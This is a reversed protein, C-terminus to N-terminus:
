FIRREWEYTGAPVLVALFTGPYSYAWVRDTRNHIIVTWPEQDFAIELRPSKIFAFPVQIVETATEAIIKGEYAYPEQLPIPVLSNDVSIEFSLAASEGPNLTVATPNLSPVIGNPWSGSISFSYDRTENSLNQIELTETKTWIDQSIDDLGLSLSGPTIITGATAAKLVDIRGSGQSFADRQLDVATEMLAAKIMEPTWDPHLQRLLATAGAVHPTAMSTGQLTSFGQGLWTSRISVGPAVLDPKIHYLKPSPGRSSFSAM